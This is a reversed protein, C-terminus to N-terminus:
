QHEALLNTLAETIEKRECSAPIFTVNDIIEICTKITDNTTDKDAFDYLPRTNQGWEHRGEKEAGICSIINVLKSKLEENLINSDVVHLLVDIAEDRTINLNRTTM